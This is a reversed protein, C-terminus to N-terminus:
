VQIISDLLWIFISMAECLPAISLNQVSVLWWQQENLQDVVTKAEAFNLIKCQMTPNNASFLGAALVVKENLQLIEPRQLV